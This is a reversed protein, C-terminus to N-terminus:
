KKAFFIQEPSSIHLVSILRNVEDLGFDGTKLRRWFTTQSMGISKAVEAYTMENRTIEAKLAPIDM